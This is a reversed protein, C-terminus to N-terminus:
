YDPDNKMWSDEGWIGQNDMVGGAKTYPNYLDWVPNWMLSWNEKLDIHRVACDFFVMNTGRNHRNLVFRALSQAVGQAAVPSGYHHGDFQPPNIDGDTMPRGGVNACDALLPVTNGNPINITKWFHPNKKDPETDPSTAWSNAGYSGCAGYVNWGSSTPGFVGWAIFASQETPNRGDGSIGIPADSWFRTSAMPCLLLKVKLVPIGTGGAGENLKGWKNEGPSYYPRLWNFWKNTVGSGGLGFFGDYDSSYTNFIVCWQKLNMQCTASRANKRVKSLAPLLIAMLLAIIAIVVLLEVLTFGRRRAM